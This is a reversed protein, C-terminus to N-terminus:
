NSCLTLQSPNHNMVNTCGAGGPVVDGMTFPGNSNCHDNMGWDEDVDANWICCNDSVKHKYNKGIFMTHITTLITQSALMYGNDCKGGSGDLYYCHGMYLVELNMDCPPQLGCTGMSCYPLNQPCVNGCKGCNKADGALNSECGDKPDNNCDFFGQNCKGLVCNGAACSATANPLATCSAGCGGCNNPDTLVPTECGDNTDGNCDDFGFNCAGIYCGDACANIANKLSCTTGCATCNDVDVHLNAECGNAANGDCDGWGPDCAGAQCQGGVCSAQAHAASCAKGCAGCNNPDNNTDACQMNCCKGSPCRDDGDCGIVCTAHADDTIKCYKGQPCQSDMTCGVCHGGGNCYPTLGGCAPQCAGAKMDDGTGADPGNGDPVCTGDQCVFGEACAPTCTTVPSSTCGAAISALLAITRNM